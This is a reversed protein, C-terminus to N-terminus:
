VDAERGGGRPRRCRCWKVDNGAMLPHWTVCLDLMRARAKDTLGAQPVLWWTRKVCTGTSIGDYELGRPLGEANPMGSGTLQMSPIFDCNWGCMLRVESRGADDVRGDPGRPAEALLSELAEVELSRM